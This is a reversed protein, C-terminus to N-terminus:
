FAYQWGVTLVSDTELQPGDLDQALPTVWEVALRHGALKDQLAWNLGLGLDLREAGYNDPDATQVPAVIAPDIGDIDNRKWATLRASLSIPRSVRWAAWGTLQHQDGLTYDNDNENLRITSQWQLGGSFREGRWNQTLGLIASWSGSGLQMPYPLRLTPRMGMPTLVDDTQENDGTPAALGVQAHLSSRATSRLTILGSVSVDGIGSAKTRFTGLRETGMGGAYTIHDMELDIYPLMAMLTLRDSPAYMVGLMHMDMVMETPVVRLTPPQGPRGFFRNPVTTAITDPSVSDTGIRNGSMDMRMFRYSLMWEGAAHTHDAMVGIPAHDDPRPADHDGDAFAATAPVSLALVVASAALTREINM